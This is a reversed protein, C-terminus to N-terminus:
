HADEEYDVVSTNTLGFHLSETIAISTQEVIGHKYTMIMHKAKNSGM